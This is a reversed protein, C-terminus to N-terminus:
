RKPRPPQPPPPPPLSGAPPEGAVSTTNSSSQHQGPGPEATTETRAVPTHGEPALLDAEAHRNETDCRVVYWGLAAVGLLGITFVVSMAGVAWTGESILSLGM